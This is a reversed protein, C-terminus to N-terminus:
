HLNLELAPNTYEDIYREPDPRISLYDVHDPISSWGHPVGAPIIIVDGVRVERNVVTGVIAGSCSPGNLVLTVNSNPASRSGNLIQGGTVLMGSGSVIVYAETQGDHAIGTAGSPTGSTVGCPQAQQAAAGGGGQRGGGGAAAAGGGGGGGQRGAAAGGGGAAAQGTPGRHVIGVALNLEGIDRSIIQRDVGPLRNIYDIIEKSIYTATMPEQASLGVPAAVALAVLVTPVLKKM